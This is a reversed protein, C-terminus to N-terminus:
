ELHSVWTIVSRKLTTPSLLRKPEVLASVSTVARSLPRATPRTPGLPAPLVVRIFSNRPRRTGSEPCIQGSDPVLLGLFLKMLTTKGAGNPGVLGVARGKLRATVDTLAKTSGFRKSLGVVNFLDTM